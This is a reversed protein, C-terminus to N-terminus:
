DTANDPRKYLWMGPDHAGDTTSGGVLALQSHRPILQASVNFVWRYREYGFSNYLCILQRAIEQAIHVFFDPSKLRVAM